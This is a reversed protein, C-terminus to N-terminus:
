NGNKNFICKPKNNHPCTHSHTHTDVQTHTFACWSAYPITLLCSAPDLTHIGPIASLGEALMKMHQVPETNKWSTVGAKTLAGARVVCM